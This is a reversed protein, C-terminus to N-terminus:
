RKNISVYEPERKIITEMMWEGKFYSTGLFVLRQRVPWHRRPFHIKLAYCRFDRVTKLLRGCKAIFDCRSVEAPVGELDFVGRFSGEQAAGRASRGIIQIKISFRSVQWHFKSLIKGKRLFEEEFGWVM